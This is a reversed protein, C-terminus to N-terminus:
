NDITRKGSPDSCEKAEIEQGLYDVRDNKQLCLSGQRIEGAGVLNPRPVRDAVNDLYWRFSKCSMRKRMRIRESVDGIDGFRSASDEKKTFNGLRFHM